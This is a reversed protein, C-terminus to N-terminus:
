RTSLANTRSPFLHPELKWGNSDFALASLERYFHRHETCIADFEAQLAKGEEDSHANMIAHKLLPLRDVRRDVVSM